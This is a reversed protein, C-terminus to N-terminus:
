MIQLLYMWFCFISNIRSKKKHLRIIRSIKKIAVYYRPKRPVIGLQEYSSNNEFSLMSSLFRKKEPVANEWSIREWHMREIGRPLMPHMSYPHMPFLHILTFFLLLKENFLNLANIIVWNWTLKGAKTLSKCFDTALWRNWAVIRKWYGKFVDPKRINEPPM